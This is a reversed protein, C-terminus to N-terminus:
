YAVHYGRHRAMILGLMWGLAIGAIICLITVTVILLATLVREATSQGLADFWGGIM